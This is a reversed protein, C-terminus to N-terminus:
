SGTQRDYRRVSMGVSRRMGVREYFSQVSPDCAVDVMYYRKLREIMRAMLATAIGRKRFSPLVELLTISACLVGDSIATVFGVVRGADDMALAIYDSSRLIRLHTEPSPHNQWGEFFGVLAKADVGATSEVYTIV